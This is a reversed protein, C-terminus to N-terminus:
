ELALAAADRNILHRSVVPRDVVVRMERTVGVAQRFPSERLFALDNTIDAVPASNM